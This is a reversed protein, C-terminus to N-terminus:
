KKYKEIFKQPDGLIERLFRLGGLENIHYEENFDEWFLHDNLLKEKLFTGDPLIYKRKLKELEM